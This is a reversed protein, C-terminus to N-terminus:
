ALQGNAAVSVATLKMTGHLAAGGDFWQGIAVRGKLVLPGAVVEANEAYQEVTYAANLSDIARKAAASERAIRAASESASEAEPACGAIVALLLATLLLLRVPTWGIISPCLIM